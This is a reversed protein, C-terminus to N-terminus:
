QKARMPPSTTCVESCSKIYTAFDEYFRVASELSSKQLAAVVEEFLAPLQVVLGPIEAKVDDGKVGLAECEQKYKM